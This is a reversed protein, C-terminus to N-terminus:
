NKPMFLHIKRTFNYFFGFTNCKVTFFLFTIAFQNFEATYSEEKVRLCLKSVWKAKFSGKHANGWFLSNLFISIKIFKQSRLTLSLYFLRLQTRKVQFKNVSECQFEGLAFEANVITMIVWGSMIMQSEFIKQLYKEGFGWTCEYM